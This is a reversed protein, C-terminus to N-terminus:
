GQQMVLVKSMPNGDEMELYIHATNQELSDCNDDPTETELRSCKKAKQMGM